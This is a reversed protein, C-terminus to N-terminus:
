KARRRGPARIKECKRVRDARDVIARDKGSGCNVVDGAGDRAKIVDASNGGSLQDSGPGGTIRDSGKNGFLCDNGDGGAIRDNGRLGVIRDGAATGSLRDARPTGPTTTACDGGAGAGPQPAAQPTPVPPECADGQGDGDADEQGPNPVSPCNDDADDVGDGDVDPPDSGLDFDVFRGVNGQEDVARVAIYRQPNPPVQFTQPTGPATPADAGPLPDAGDFDAQDDIPNASTVVEYRAATGCLLDDGAPDVRVELGSTTILQPNTLAGPLM